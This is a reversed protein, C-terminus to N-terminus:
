VAPLLTGMERCLQTWVHKTVHVQMGAWDKCEEIYYEARRKWELIVFSKRM